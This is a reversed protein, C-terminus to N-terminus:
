FSAMVLLELKGGAINCIRICSSRTVMVLYIFIYQPASCFNPLHRELMLGILLILGSSLPGSSFFYLLFDLLIGGKVLPLVIIVAPIALVVARVYCFWPATVTAAFSILTATTASQLYLM